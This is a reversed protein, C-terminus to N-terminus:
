DSKDVAFPPLTERSWIGSELMANRHDHLSERLIRNDSEAKALDDVVKRRSRTSEKLWRKLVGGLWMIIGGAIFLLLQELSDVLPPM